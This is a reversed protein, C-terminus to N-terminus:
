RPLPALSPTTAIAVGLDMGRAVRGWPTHRRFRAPAARFSSVPHRITSPSASARALPCVILEVLGVSGFALYEADRSYFGQLFGKRPNFIRPHCYFTMVTELAASWWVSWKGSWNLKEGCEWGLVSFQHEFLM